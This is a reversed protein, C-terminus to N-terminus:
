SCSNRRPPGCSGASAPWPSRPPRSRCGPCARRSCVRPRAGAQTKPAEATARATGASFEGRYLRLTTRYSRWLSGAGILGLGVTGLLAPLVNGEALGLAGWAMWGPPLVLNAVRAVEEAQQGRQRNQEKHERQIQERRQAYQEATLAGAALQEALQREQRALRAQAASWPQWVNLLNPLQSLLVVVLTAVLLVTNRRRPNAMLAALWGQLQYTLATVMLLFAALLPLLLLQAPGRACAV